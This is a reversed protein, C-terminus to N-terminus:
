NTMGHESGSEHLEDPEWYAARGSEIHFKEGEKGKVWGQGNVVVFLQHIAAPHLGVVGEAGILFCGIHVPNNHLAIKSFNVQISNFNTIERGAEKDFNFIRM